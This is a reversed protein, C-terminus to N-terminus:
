NVTGENKQFHHIILNATEEVAKNTVDIVQCNIKGAIKEFFSLSKISENLTLMAQKIM